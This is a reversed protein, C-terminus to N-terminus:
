SGGNFYQFLDQRKGSAISGASPRISAQQYSLIAPICRIGEHYLHCTVFEEVDRHTESVAGWVVGCLMQGLVHMTM